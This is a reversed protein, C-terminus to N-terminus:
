AGIPNPSAFGGRFDGEEVRDAAFGGVPHFFVPEQLSTTGGFRGARYLRTLEQLFIFLFIM